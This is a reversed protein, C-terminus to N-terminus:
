KSKSITKYVHEYEHLIEEATPRLAPDREKCQRHIRFLHFRMIDSGTVDGLIFNVANPIKWIDTKEDYGPMDNDDFVRDDYPWLQEPAVFDGYLQKHGCKILNGRETDVQPLADLDSVILTLDETVLFQSLTKTIDNSDCMVCVGLPSTHLFHIIKVYNISLQFRFIITDFQKYKDQTLIENLYDLSQLPHYELIASGDCQGILQVVHVSSAFSKIM